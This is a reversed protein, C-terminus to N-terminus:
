ECSGCLWIDLGKNTVRNLNRHPWCKRRTVKNGFAGLAITEHLGDDSTKFLEALLYETGGSNDAGERLVSLTLTLTLTV